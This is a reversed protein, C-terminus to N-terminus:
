VGGESSVERGELNYFGAGDGVKGNKREVKNLEVFGYGGKM